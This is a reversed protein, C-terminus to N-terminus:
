GHGAVLAAAITPAATLGKLRATIRGNKFILVTPILCIAFLDALEPNQDVDVRVVGAAGRLKAALDELVAAQTRCSGCWPAQFAVLVPQEAELVEDRFGAIDLDIVGAM